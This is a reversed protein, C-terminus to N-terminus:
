SSQRPRRSGRGPEVDSGRRRQRGVYNIILNAGAQALKVAIAQGIGSSSGTVLAVRNELSKM